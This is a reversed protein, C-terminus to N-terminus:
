LAETGLSGGAAPTDVALGDGQELRADLSSGDIWVAQEGPDPTHADRRSTGHVVFEKVTGPL